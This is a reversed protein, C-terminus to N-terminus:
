WYSSCSINSNGVGFHVDKFFFNVINLVCRKCLTLSVLPLYNMNNGGPKTDVSQHLKCTTKISKYYHLKTTGGKCYNSSHNCTIIASYGSIYDSFLQMKYISDAIGLNVM